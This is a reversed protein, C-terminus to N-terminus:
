ENFVEGIVKGTNANPFTIELLSSITPAIDTINVHSKSAGKKIGKGYFIIPVHTDYNYGSGHTSGTKSYSITAPNPVMLVDGSFKQNYGNQLLHMIGKTFNATQMTRATVTKYIGKYNILEDALNQSVANADLKLEKIEEKNLFIQFNSINEILDKSKYRKFLYANAKKKLEKNDFYGSPIKLTQLYSPVQVAAHDATLFLTYNGKGVKEDLFRLFDALDKDLRLYTDQIEKSDVGFKHGVYDTSSFSIALFDTVNDDQGLNEGIIAAEAFDKVLSNGFPTASLISYNNNGKKLKKLNYPFTPTDKGKFKGEFPNNDAISETYTDIDYLTNWTSNLYQKAKGNKNFQQVWQPLEDMYYSSTIFKGEKGGKYWYAANAAHGAPLIASRDKISLGIVKGRKNQAMKLEDGVTTSIMRRPSKRGGDAAGISKYDGDDVCYIYKKEFKQYWNNGIIGHNSPTTGTYISTHGVATYTPIYNYHGNECNFGDNLLRKFGDNGYKDYFRTLYDYRMQDVVIGVVLKPRQMDILVTKPELPKNVSTQCIGFGWLMVTISFLAVKKM